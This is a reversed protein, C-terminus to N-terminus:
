APVTFAMGICVASSPKAKNRLMWCRRELDNDGTSVVTMSIMAPGRPSAGKVDPNVPSMGAKSNRVVGASFPGILNLM